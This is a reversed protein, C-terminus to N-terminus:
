CLIPLLSLDLINSVPSHQPEARVSHGHVDAPQHSRRRRAPDNHVYDSGDCPPFRFRNATWRSRQWTRRSRCRDCIRFLQIRAKCGGTSGSFSQVAGFVFLMLVVWFPSIACIGLPFTRRFGPPRCGFVIGSTHLYVRDAVHEIREYTAAFFPMKGDTRASSALKNAVSAVLPAAVLNRAGAVVAPSSLLVGRPM